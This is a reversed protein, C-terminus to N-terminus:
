GVKTATGRKAEGKSGKAPQEAAADMTGKLSTFIAVTLSSTPALLMCRALAM